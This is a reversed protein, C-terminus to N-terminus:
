IDPQMVLLNIECHYFQTKFLGVGGELDTVGDYNAPDM